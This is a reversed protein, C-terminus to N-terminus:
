PRGDTSVLVVTGHGVMKAAREADLKRGDATSFQAGSVDVARLETKWELVNVVYKMEVMQGGVLKRKTREEQCYFTVPVIQEVRLKGDEMRALAYQPPPGKPPVVKAPKAQAAAPAALFFTALLGFLTRRM